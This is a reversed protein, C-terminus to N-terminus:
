IFIISSNFRLSLIQLWVTFWRCEYDKKEIVITISFYKKKDIENGEHDYLSSRTRLLLLYDYLQSNMQLEYHLTQAYYPYWEFLYSLAWYSLDYDYRRLISFRANIVYFVKMYFDNILTLQERVSRLEIVLASSDEGM